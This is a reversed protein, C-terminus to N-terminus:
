KTCFLQRTKDIRQRKLIDAYAVTANRMGSVDYFYMKVASTPLFGKKLRITGEYYVRVKLM